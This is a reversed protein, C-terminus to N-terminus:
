PERRRRRAEIRDARRFERVADAHRGLQKYAIGLNLHGPGYADDVRLAAEYHAVADDFIADELLLNGVNVIAPVCQADAELAEVFVAIAAPREGRRLHILARKNHVLAREKGSSADELAARFHALAEDFRLAELAAVGAAYPTKPARPRSSGFLRKFFSVAPINCTSTM